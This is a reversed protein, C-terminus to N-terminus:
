YRMAWVGAGWMSAYLLRSKTDNVFQYSGANDGVSTGTDSVVTSWTGPAAESAMRLTHNNWAGAFIKGDVGGVGSWNGSGPGPNLPAWSAGNNTSRLVPGFAGVYLAGTSDRYPHMGGHSMSQASYVQAWSAGRNTTRWYGGSQSGLLWTNTDLFAITNGTGWAPNPFHAKWTAGKDFSELLGSDDSGVGPSHFSVVIHGWNSPDVALRQADGYQQIQNNQAATLTTDALTRKTWTAGANSSYWVGLTGRVGNDLYLENSNAPNVEVGHASDFSGVEAWSAGCDTTKYLGGELLAFSPESYGSWTSYLTGPKNPDVAMGLAYRKNGGSTLAQPQKAVPRWVGLSYGSLNCPSSASAGGAGTGAASGSGTTGSSTQGAAGSSSGGSGSECVCTCGSPCAEILQEQVALPEGTQTCAGVLCIVSIFASSYKAM